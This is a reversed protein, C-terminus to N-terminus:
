FAVVLHGAHGLMGDVAGIQGYGDVGVVVRESGLM